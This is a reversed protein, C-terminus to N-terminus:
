RRKRRRVVEEYLLIKIINRQTERPVKSELPILGLITEALRDLSVKDPYEDYIYSEKIDLRDLVDVIVRIYRKVVQPYMQRFYERDADGEGNGVNMEMYPYSMFYPLPPRRQQGNEERQGRNREDERMYPYNTYNFIGSDRQEKSREDERMYPYDKFNSVGFGRQEM